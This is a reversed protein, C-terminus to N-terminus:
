LWLHRKEMINSVVHDRVGELIIRSTKAVDKKWQTLQQANSQPPQLNNTKVYEFGGNENIM